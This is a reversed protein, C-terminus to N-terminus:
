PDSAADGADGADAVATRKMEGSPARRLALAYYMDLAGAASTLMFNSSFAANEELGEFTGASTGGGERALSYSGDVRPGLGRVVADFRLSVLEGQAAPTTRAYSGALGDFTQTSLWAGGGCANALVPNASDLHQDSTAASEDDTSRACGIACIAALGGFCLIRQVKTLM